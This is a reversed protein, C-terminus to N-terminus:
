HAGEPLKLKVIFHRERKEEPPLQMYDNYLNRLYADYGNPIFCREGEFSVEKVPLFVERSFIEGNYYKRGTPIGWKRDTRESAVFRDFWWVWKRHPIIGFFRGLMCKLRYRRLMKPDLSMYEYLARSGYQAYMVVISVFQLSNAIFGKVYQGIRTVPVADLAFVDIYLGKPFPADTSFVDVNLTGKRYIKLFVNKSDTDPSPTTYEYKDGLAGAALLGILTEYDHRPMMIDLDDDWPIFGKHRVAGLCSGGCLMVTLGYKGCLAAVDKYIDLLARKMGVSEESTMEHLYGTRHALANMLESDSKM